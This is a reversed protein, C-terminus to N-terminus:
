AHVLLGSAALLLIIVELVALLAQLRDGNRWLVPVTAVFCVISVTALIGIAALALMDGAPLHVLWSWGNPLEVRQGYEGSPLMWLDPLLEHPVYAPAIGTVYALFGIVLLGFSLRMGIGLIRAYRLQSASVAPAAQETSPKM